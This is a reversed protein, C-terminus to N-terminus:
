KKTFADLIKMVVVGDDASCPNNNQDLFYGVVKEIMPQQVHQIPDYLVVEEEDGITTILSFSEFVKFQIKGKSGVIECIDKEQAEDVAFSWLGNFAVGSEFLINGTVLDDANYLVAQNTGFGNMSKIPGFFYYMLDLQHPALDHFLGGGSIAPDVRWISAAALPKKLFEINAFRVDGIVKNDIMKKITKFIPQERRYHAVVVKVNKEKAFSSILEAEEVNMCMPKEIYVSKGAKIAAIAYEMHSSPPTAVYIANV